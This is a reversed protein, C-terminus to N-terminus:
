NIPRVHCNMKVTNCFGIITRYYNPTHFILLARAYKYFSCLSFCLFTQFPPSAREKNQFTLFACESFSPHLPPLHPLYELWDYLFTWWDKKSLLAIFELSQVSFGHTGSKLRHVYGATRTYWAVIWPYGLSGM